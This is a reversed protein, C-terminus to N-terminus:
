ADAADEILQRVWASGGRRMAKAKLEQPMRCKLVEMPADYLSPRGAKRKGKSEERM